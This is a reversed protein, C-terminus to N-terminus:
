VCAVPVPTNRFDEIECLNNLVNVKLMGCRNNLVKVKLMGCRNNIVNMKFMKESPKSPVNMIGRPKNLFNM